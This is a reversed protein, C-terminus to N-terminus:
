LNTLYGGLARDLQVRSMLYKKVGETYRRHAMVEERKNEILRDVGLGMVNYLEESSALVGEQVPLLHHRYGDVINLYSTLLKYAERVESLVHIELEALHDQAQRLQAYLRMRAGQGYNFIPLDLAFGPGILHAGGPEREGALGGKLNTYVWPENLGLTQAQRIIEFRAVQLDLRNELASSELCCLDFCDHLCEDPLDNPILLCVEECVGLLRNLKETLRVIETEVEALELKAELFKSLSLQVDLGIVNGVAEQSAVLDRHISTLEVVDHLYKVIKTEAVLAYYTERVDFALNLIANAVKLKTQQFETDALRMKLPILFADLLSTVILYEINTHLRSTQPYRIEVAASPNTLLGSEVLDARAMGLEEFLAQIKPNNLLAIQIASDATLEQDLLCQITSRIEEDPDAGQYWATHADIRTAVLSAVHDDELPPIRTCGVILAFAFLLTWVYRFM